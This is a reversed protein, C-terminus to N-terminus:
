FHRETTPTRVVTLLPIRSNKTVSDQASIKTIYGLLPNELVRQNCQCMIWLQSILDKMDLVAMISMGCTKYSVVDIIASISPNYFLTYTRSVSIQNIQSSLM